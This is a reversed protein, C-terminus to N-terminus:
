MTALLWFGVAVLGVGAITRIPKIAKQAIATTRGLGVGLMLAALPLSYGIAFLGLIVAGWVADGRAASMGFVVPLLPGCCAMTCAISATGIVLGFAISGVRGSPRKVKSLDVSPLRFPLVKLAALGAFILAFGMFATGYQKLSTGALGTIHGIALGMLSLSVVAGLMFAITTSIADRRSYREDRSGAFGVVAAIVGFNCCSTVATILGLLLAAPFATFTFSSSKLVQEVWDM